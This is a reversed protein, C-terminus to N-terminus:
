PRPFQPVSTDLLTFFIVHGTLPAVPLLRAISHRCLAEIADDGHKGLEAAARVPYRGRSAGAGGGGGHRNGPLDARDERLASVLWFKYFDKRLWSPSELPFM